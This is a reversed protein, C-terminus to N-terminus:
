RTGATIERKGLVSKQDHFILMGPLLTFHKRQLSSRMIFELPNKSSGPKLFTRSESLGLSGPLVNENGTGVSYRCVSINRGFYDGSVQLCPLSHIQDSDLGVARDWGAM